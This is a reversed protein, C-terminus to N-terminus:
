FHLTCTAFTIATFNRSPSDTILNPMKQQQITTYVVETSAVHCVLGARQGVQPIMSM